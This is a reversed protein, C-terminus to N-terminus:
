KINLKKRTDDITDIIEVVMEEVILGEDLKDAMVANM